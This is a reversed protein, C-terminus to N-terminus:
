DNQFNGSVFLCVFMTYMPKKNSTGYMSGYLNFNIKIYCVFLEITNIQKTLFKEESGLFSAKNCFIM